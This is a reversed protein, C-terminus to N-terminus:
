PVHLLYLDSDRAVTTDKLQTMPIQRIILDYAEAVVAAGDPALAPRRFLRLGPDLSVDTAAALDVLHLVGGSDWQVPGFEPDVSFHVRGGVVAVLRNGVVDIDRAVGAPGFDFAVGTGGTSLSQRFVRTDGSLTYLIEDGGALALGSAFETGPVSVPSPGIQGLDLLAVTLGTRITDLACVQFKQDCPYRQTVLDGVYALRGSTQWRLASIGSVVRGGPLTYPVPQVESAGVPDLGSAVALSAVTPRPDDIDSRAKFFALRGEPSAVASEIANTTDRGLRTFDCDLRIQSGGDPPVQALCIDHDPRAVQQASYLIGSGDPLWSAFRDAGANFTLRVPPAPDFPQDTTPPSTTFPDTHGCALALGAGAALALRRLNKPAGAAM